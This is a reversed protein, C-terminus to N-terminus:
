RIVLSALGCPDFGKIHEIFFDRLDATAERVRKEQCTILIDDAAAVVIVPLTTKIGVLTFLRGSWKFHCSEISRANALNTSAKLM